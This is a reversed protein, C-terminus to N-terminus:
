PTIGKDKLGLKGQEAILANIQEDNRFWQKAKDDKPALGREAAWDKSFGNAGCWEGNKPKVFRLAFSKVGYNITLLGDATVTQGCLPVLDHATGTFPGANKIALVLEGSERLLGMVRRGAGCDAPCDGTLVCMVDVAKADFRTAEEGPLSWSNAARAANTAVLLAGLGLLAAIAFLGIMKM